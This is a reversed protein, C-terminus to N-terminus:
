GYTYNGGSCKFIKRATEAAAAFFVYYTYFFHLLLSPRKNCAALKLSDFVPGIVTLCYIVFVWKRKALPANYKVRASYGSKEAQNLNINVHFRLKKLYSTIKAASYHKINDGPICGIYHTASAMQSFVSVAFEQTNVAEGFLEKAKKLSISTNGGDGIPIIDKEQYEYVYGANKYKLHKRNTKIFSGKNKYVVYSFPDSVINLYPCSFGSNEGPILRNAKYCFVNPNSKIFHYRRKLQRRDLLVEDSDFFVIWEGRAQQIGIRKATEPMVQANKLIRANYKEAIELTRDKSGGDIVLIEIREQPFDQERISSLAKEITRESNLVPMIMSFFVLNM